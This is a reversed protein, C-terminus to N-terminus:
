IWYSSLLSVPLPMSGPLAPSDLLHFVDATASLKKKVILGYWGVLSTFAPICNFDFIRGQWINARFFLFLFYQLFAFQAKYPTRKNHFTKLNLWCYYICWLWCYRNLSSALTAILSVQLLTKPTRLVVDLYFLSWKRKQPISSTLDSACSFFLFM